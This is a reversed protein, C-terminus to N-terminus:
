GDFDHMYRLLAGPVDDAYVQDGTLFLQQLRTDPKLRNSEIEKDLLALADSGPGHAKRCSAQAIKLKSVDDQPVCFTPLHGSKYGIPLQVRKSTSPSKTLLGASFFDVHLSPRNSDEIYINYSYIEGAQLAVQPRVTVVGVYLREGIRHLRASEPIPRGNHDHTALPIPEIGNPVTSFGTTPRSAARMRVERVDYLRLRMRLLVDDQPIPDSKFALWVSVSRKEVRRLIPGAIVHKPDM